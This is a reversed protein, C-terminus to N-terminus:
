KPCVYLVLPIDITGQQRLTEVLRQSDQGILVYGELSHRDSAPPVPAMAVYNSRGPTIKCIRQTCPDFISVVRIHDRAPNVASFNHYFVSSGTRTANSSHSHSEMDTGEKCIPQTHLKGIYSPHSYEDFAAPACRFIDHLVGGTAIYPYRSEYEISNDDRNASAKIIIESPLPLCLAEYVWEFVPQPRLSASPNFTNLAASRSLVLRGRGVTLEFSDM